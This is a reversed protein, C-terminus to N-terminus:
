EFNGKVEENVSKETDNRLKKIMKYSINTLPSDLVLKAICESKFLIMSIHDLLTKNVQFNMKFKKWDDNLQVHNIDTIGLGEKEAIMIHEIQNLPMGMLQTGLSDAVVPNNSAIILDKKIADGYMPGHKNLAYTGDIIAIKPDLVKTLLTLRRSLYKHHLSRMTDPYCGWLNKMSLSIITNSHVKLVPVSIFCDIENILLKPVQVKVRIGQIKEEVYQYPLSSLNILEVGTEKCIEIMGHGKFATDATFSHNGGNSEGLIVREAHDKLIGLLEKLVIPNTTVGEKYFPYTFNPKVFITSDTGSISKWNIYELSNLIDDDLNSIKTIFAKYNNMEKQSGM